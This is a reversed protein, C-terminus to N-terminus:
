AKGLRNQAAAPGKAGTANYLTQNQNQGRLLSLLQETNRSNRLIVQENRQNQRTIGELRQQLDQWATAADARLTEPLSDFWALVGESSAPFGQGALLQERSQNLGSFEELLQQKAGTSRRLAELDHQQLAELEADLQQGLADLVGIGQRALTVFSEASQLQAPETM